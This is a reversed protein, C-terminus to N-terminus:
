YTFLTVTVQMTSGTQFAAADSETLPAPCVKWSEGSGRTSSHKDDRWYWVNLFFPIKAQASLGFIDKAAHLSVIRVVSIPWFINVWEWFHHKWMIPFLIKINSSLLRMYNKKFFYNGLSETCFLYKRTGRHLRSPTAQRTDVRLSAVAKGHDVWGRICWHWFLWQISIKHWILIELKQM